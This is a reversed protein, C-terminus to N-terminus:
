INVKSDKAPYSIDAIDVSRLRKHADIVLVSEDTLYNQYTLVVLRM